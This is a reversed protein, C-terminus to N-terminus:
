WDDGETDEFVQVEEETLPEAEPEPFALMEELAASMATKKFKM